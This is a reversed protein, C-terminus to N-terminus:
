ETKVRRLLLAFIEESHCCENYQATDVDVAFSEGPGAVLEGRHGSFVSLTQDALTFDLQFSSVELDFGAPGCATVPAIVIPAFLGAPLEGNRPAVGAALLADDAGRLELWKESIVDLDQSGSDLQVSDGAAWAVEGEPAIPLSLTVARPTGGEDCTLSTVSKDGEAAVADVTCPLDIEHVGAKGDIAVEFDVSVAPDAEECAAPLAGETEGATPEEGTETPTGETAGETAGETEQPSTDSSGGKETSCALAGCCLGIIVRVRLAHVPLM